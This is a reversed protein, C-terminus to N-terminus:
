LRRQDGVNAWIITLILFITWYLELNEFQVGVGKLFLGIGPKYSLFQGLFPITSFFVFTPCGTPFISGDVDAQGSKQVWGGFGPEVWKSIKSM